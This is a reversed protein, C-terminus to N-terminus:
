APLYRLDQQIQQLQLLTFMGHVAGKKHAAIIQIKKPSVSLKYGEEGLSDKRNKEISFYIEGSSKSRSNEAPFRLEEKLLKVEGAFFEPAHVNIKSGIKFFGEKKVLNAPQPILAYNPEPQATASAIILFLPLVFSFKRM